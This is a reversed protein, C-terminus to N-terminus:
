GNPAKDPSVLGLKRIRRHVTTCRLWSAGILPDRGQACGDAARLPGDVNASTAPRM